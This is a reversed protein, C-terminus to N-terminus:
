VRKMVAKFIKIWVPLYRSRAVEFWKMSANPNMDTSKNPLGHYQARAYPTNWSVFSADTAIVGSRELTGEDKPIFFNSDKLIQQALARQGSSAATNIKAKLKSKDFTVVTESM